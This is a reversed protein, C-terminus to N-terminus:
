IGERPTVRTEAFGPYTRIERDRKITPLGKAARERDERNEACTLRRDERDQAAIKQELADLRAQSVAM